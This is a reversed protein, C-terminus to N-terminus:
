EFSFFDIELTGGNPELLYNQLSVNEFDDQGNKRLWGIEKKKM